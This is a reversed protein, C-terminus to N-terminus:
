REEKSRPLLARQMLWLTAGLYSAAGLLIMAVGGWQQDTGAFAQASASHAYLQRPALTILVGLLTMHMFTLLLGIVGHMSRQTRQVRTGGLVAMWLLWGSVLFSGQETAKLWPDHAAAHHLVPVHWAWVVFFEFMSAVIASFYQPVRRVPDLPSGSVAFALLPAALAVVSMHMVMHQTFPGFPLFRLGGSWVVALTLCGFVLSLRHTLPM